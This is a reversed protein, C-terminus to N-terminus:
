KKGKPDSSHDLAPKSLVGILLIRFISLTRSFNVTREYAAGVLYAPWWMRLYEPRGEILEISDVNLKAEKALRRIDGACNARYRTPFIDSVQRGRKRNIYEHFSHPTLRAITAMYHFKNPTKFIFAGGPRLVRRIESLVLVPNDLHEMVNDAFVVDFMNDEFPIKGADGLKAVDLYPNSLVRPDLDVGSVSGALGRFNMQPIIGAGAGVDLVSDSPKLFALIRSRMLDDDWNRQYQPYLAKDIKAVLGSM